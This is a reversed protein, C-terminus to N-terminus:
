PLTFVAGIRGRAGLVSAVRDGWVRGEGHFGDLAVSARRLVFCWGAKLLHRPHAGFGVQRLRGALGRKGKQEVVATQDAGM